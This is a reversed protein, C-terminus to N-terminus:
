TYVYFLTLRPPPPPLHTTNFILKAIRFIAQGGWSLFRPPSGPYSAEFLYVAAAFNKQLNSQLCLYIANAEIFSMSKCSLDLQSDAYIFWGKINYAYLRSKRYGETFRKKTCVPIGTHLTRVYM